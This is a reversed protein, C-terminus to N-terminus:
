VGMGQGDARVRDAWGLGAQGGVGVRGGEGCGDM